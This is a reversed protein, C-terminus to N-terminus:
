GFHDFGRQELALVAGQEDLVRVEPSGARMCGIRTVEIGGKTAAALVAERREPAATFALEYDDGGSLLAARAHARDRQMLTRLADSQPLRELEIEASLGSREAIHGLDAVLGDSIDIASHAV